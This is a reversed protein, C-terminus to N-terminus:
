GDGVAKPWVPVAVIRMSQPGDVWVLIPRARNAEITVIEQRLPDDPILAEMFTHRNIPYLEIDSDLHEGDQLPKTLLEEEIRVIPLQERTDVLSLYDTSGQVVTRVIGELRRRQEPQLPAHQFTESM